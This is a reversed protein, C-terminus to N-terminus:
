RETRNYTKVVNKRGTIPLGAIVVIESGCNNTKNKLVFVPFRLQFKLM